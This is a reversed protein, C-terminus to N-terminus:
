ELVVIERSIFQDPRFEQIKLKTDSNKLRSLRLRAENEMKSLDIKEQGAVPFTIAIKAKPKKVKKLQKLVPIINREFKQIIERSKKKGPKKRITEGLPTETAIGDFQKNPTHQADNSELEYKSKIQYKQKLWILNQKAQSIAKPDKDIGYCNIKKILAEQIIGGVGCFPDLMLDNDKLQALNILIKSLRPSIALSERRNPKEMDRKKIEEYNYEQNTTGLIITNKTQIAFIYFDANPLNATEETEQIKIKRRGHRLMAKKKEQKFKYKITEIIEENNTFIGYSFKDSPIIEKEYNELEKPSGEFFGKGAHITGGLKQIDIEKETEILLKNDEFIIEKYKKNRAELYAYIEARSLEPNRGLLFFQKTKM